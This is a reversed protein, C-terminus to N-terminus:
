RSKFEVMGLGLVRKESLVGRDAASLAMQLTIEFLEQRKIIAIITMFWVGVLALEFCTGFLALARFAVGHIAPFGRKEAHFLVVCGLVRKLAFVNDNFAVLAM